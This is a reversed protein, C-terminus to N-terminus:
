IWCAVGRSMSGHRHSHRFEGAHTPVMTMPCMPAVRQGLRAVGSRPVQLFSRQSVRAVHALPSFHFRTVEDLDGLCCAMEYTVSLTTLHLNESIM